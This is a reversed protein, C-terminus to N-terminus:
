MTEAPDLMPFARVVFLPGYFKAIRDKILTIDDSKLSTPEAADFVRLALAGRALSQEKTPKEGQELNVLARASLMGLTLPEGSGPVFDGNPFREEHNTEVPKGSLDLIKQSFDILHKMDKGSM